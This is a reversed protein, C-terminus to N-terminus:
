TKMLQWIENIRKLYEAEKEVRNKTIELEMKFVLNKLEEANMQEFIGKLQHAIVEMLLLNEQDLLENLREIKQNVLGQQQDDLTIEAALGSRVLSEEKENFRSIMALMLKEDSNEHNGLM